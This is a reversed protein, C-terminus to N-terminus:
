GVIAVMVITAVIHSIRFFGVQKARLFIATEKIKEIKSWQFVPIATQHYPFYITDTQNPILLDLYSHASILIKNVTM